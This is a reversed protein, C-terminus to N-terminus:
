ARGLPAHPFRWVAAALALHVPVVVALVVGSQQSWAPVLQILVAVCSLLAIIVSVGVAVGSRRRRVIAIPVVIAAVLLLPQLALLTTNAGMYPAHKTVTAALLLATGLLGGLLYWIATVAAAVGRLGLANGNALWMLLGALALGLLLAVGVREPPQDPLPVRSSTYLVTDRAVFRYRTGDGATLVLPAYHAAMHEPLFEEDWKSLPEDAHQGLAIEIGAYLSLMSGLLRATEGRWTRGDGPITLAPKLKGGIVYDLADRAMTACNQQYYDYRYYKNAERANWQLVEFLTAREVPTLALVQQRITRNDGQYVGNFLATPYGAMSYKTEGTLFRVLFGPQDFDFIGWNYAVDEGTLSDRVGIATHGFREFFVDSPGYTYLSVTLSAGRMARLSDVAASVGPAIPKPDDVPQALAARTGVVMAAVGILSALAMQGAWRQVTHVRRRLM